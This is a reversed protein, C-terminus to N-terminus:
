LSEVVPEIEETIYNKEQYNPDREIKTELTNLSSLCAAFGLSVGLLGLFPRRVRKTEYDTAIESCGREYGERFFEEDSRSFRYEKSNKPSRRNGSINGFRRRYFVIMPIEIQTNKM